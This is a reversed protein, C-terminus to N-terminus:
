RWALPSRRLWRDIRGQASTRPTRGRRKDMSGLAGKRSASGRVCRVLCRGPTSTGGGTVM